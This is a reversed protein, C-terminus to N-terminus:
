AGPKRYAIPTKCARDVDECTLLPVTRITAVGTAGVALSFAAASVSDPLDVITVADEHGFSFYFAELTGGLKKVVKEIATRRKTGGEKMLGGSGASTYDVLYMFKPM